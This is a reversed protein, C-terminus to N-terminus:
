PMPTDVDGRRLESANVSATGPNVKTTFTLKQQTGWVLGACSGPLKLPKYFSGNLQTNTILHNRFQRNLEADPKADPAAKWFDDLTGQYTLGPMDYLANGCVKTPAGHHLASLGVTSNIVVVGRAHDLLSPLHQDHIYRVYRAIGAEQAFRKILATYDKYGRCMPHHKFILLADGPGHKAFSHLTDEIFHEIGEFDAHV